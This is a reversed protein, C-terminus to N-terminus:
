RGQRNSWEREIEEDAQELTCGLIQKVQSALNLKPKQFSPSIILTSSPIQWFKHEESAIDEEDTSYTSPHHPPLLPPLSDM